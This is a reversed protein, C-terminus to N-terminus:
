VRHYSGDLLPVLDRGADGADDGGHVFDAVDDCDYEDRVKTRPSVYRDPNSHTLISTFINIYM